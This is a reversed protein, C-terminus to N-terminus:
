GMCAQSVKGIMTREGAWILGRGAGGTLGRGLPAQTRAHAFSGAGREQGPAPGPADHGDRDARHGRASPGDVRIVGVGADSFRRGGHDAVRGLAAGLPRSPLSRSPIIQLRHLRYREAHAAPTPMHLMGSFTRESSPNATEARSFGLPMRGTEFSLSNLTM